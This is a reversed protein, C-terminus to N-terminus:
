AVVSLKQLKERVSALSEQVVNLAYGTVMEIQETEMGEVYYLEFVEREPRPWARMEHQLLASADEGRVIDELPDHEQEGVQGETGAVQESLQGRNGQGRQSNDGNM